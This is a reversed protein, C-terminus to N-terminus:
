STPQLDATVQCVLNRRESPTLTAPDIRRAQTAHGGESVDFVVVESVSAVGDTLPEYCSYGRGGELEWVTFRDPEYVRVVQGHM